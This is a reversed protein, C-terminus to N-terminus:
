KIVSPVNSSPSKTSFPLQLFDEPTTEGEGDVRLRLAPSDIPPLFSNKTFPRIGPLREPKPSKPPLFSPKTTLKGEKIENREPITGSVTNSAMTPVATKEHSDQPM